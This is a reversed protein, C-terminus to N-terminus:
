VFCHNRPFSLFITCGHDKRALVDVEGANRKVIAKVTSLGIGSGEYQASGHEREFMEFIRSPNDSDFGVGKDNIYYTVKDASVMYGLTITNVHDKASFKISNHIVNRFVVKMMLADGSLDPLDYVKYAIPSETPIVSLEDIVSYILDMMHIKEQKMETYTIKSFTVFENICDIVESCTKKVSLLDELSGPSLKDGDDELIFGVYSSIERIPTKMEHTIVQNFLSLNNYSEQLEANREEVKKELTKNIEILEQRYQEEKTINKSLVIIESHGNITDLVMTIGLTQGIPNQYSFRAHGERICKNLQAVWFEYSDTSVANALPIGPYFDVKLVLRMYNIYQSNANILNFTECDFITVYGDHIQLITSLYNEVQNRVNETNQYHSMSRLYIFLNYEGSETYSPRGSLYYLSSDHGPFHLIVPCENFSYPSLHKIIVEKSESDTCFDVINCAELHNAELSSTYTSQLITGDKAILFFYDRDNEYVYELIKQHLLDTAM